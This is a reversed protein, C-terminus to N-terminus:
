EGTEENEPEPAPLDTGPCQRDQEQARKRESDRRRIDEIVIRAKDGVYFTTQHQLDDLKQSIDDIFGREAAEDLVELTWIPECGRKRAEKRAKRDDMLVIDAGEECALSIVARDGDGRTGRQGLTPIDEVLYPQKIELWQPPASAWRRVPEPAAARSMEELVVPPVLVRTFLRPLIDDAGVLILYHLPGMDCVVIM